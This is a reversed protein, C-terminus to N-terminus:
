IRFLLCSLYLVQYPTVELVPPPYGLPTYALPPLPPPPYSSSFAANANDLGIVPLNSPAPDVVGLGPVGVPFPLIDISSNLDLMEFGIECGRSPGYMSVSALWMVYASESLQNVRSEFACSGNLEGDLSGLGRNLASDVPSCICKFAGEMGGRSMVGDGVGVNVNAPMSSEADPTFPLPDGNGQDVLALV